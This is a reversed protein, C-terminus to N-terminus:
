DLFSLCTSQQQHRMRRLWNTIDTIGGYDDLNTPVPLKERQGEVTKLKKGSNEFNMLRTISVEHQCTFKILKRLENQGM